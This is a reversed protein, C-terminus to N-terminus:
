SLSTVYAVLDTVRVIHAILAGAPTALVATALATALGAGSPLGAMVPRASQAIMLRTISRSSAGLAMRVGIERTRQEVLYSLVSFLGSVTLMLALGALVLLVWFGIQLFFTEIRTVTRRTIITGMNPDM